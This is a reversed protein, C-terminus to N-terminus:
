KLESLHSGVVRGTQVHGSPFGLLSRTQTATALSIFVQSQGRWLFLYERWVRCLGRVVLFDTMTTVRLAAPDYTLLMASKRFRMSRIVETQSKM